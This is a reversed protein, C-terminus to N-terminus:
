ARKNTQRDISSLRGRGGFNFRVEDETLQGDGNKDLKRLAAPAAAVEAASLEGDSNTDLAALIPDLRM